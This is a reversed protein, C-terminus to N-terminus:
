PTAPPAPATPVASEPTELFGPHGFYWAVAVLAIVIAIIGYITPKNM